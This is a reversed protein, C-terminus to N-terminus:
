RMKDKECKTGASSHARLNQGGFPVKNFICVTYGSFELLNTNLLFANSMNLDHGKEHPGCIDFRFFLLSYSKYFFM